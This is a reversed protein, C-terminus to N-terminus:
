SVGTATFACGTSRKGTSKGDRVKTLPHQLLMQEDLPALVSDIHLRSFCISL